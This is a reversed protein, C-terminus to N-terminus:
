DITLVRSRDGRCPYEPWDTYFSQTKTRSLKAYFRGAVRRELVVEWKSGSIVAEDVTRDRGLRKKRLTVTGTGCSGNEREIRGSFRNDKPAFDITVRGWCVDGTKCMEPPPDGHTWMWVAVDTADPEPQEGPEADEDYGETTDAEVTSDTSDFDIWGRIEQTGGGSSPPYVSCGGAGQAVTCTMDPSSPSDGDDPDRIGTIEFDVNVGTWDQDQGSLETGCGEYRSPHDDDTTGPYAWISDVIDDNSMPSAQDPDIDLCMQTPHSASAVPVVMAVLGLCLAVSLKRM